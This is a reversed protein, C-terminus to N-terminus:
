AEVRISAEGASCVGRKSRLKTAVAACSSAWWHNPLRTVIAQHSSMQSFSDKAEQSPSRMVASSIGPQPQSVLTSADRAWAMRVSRSTEDRRMASGTRLASSSALTQSLM